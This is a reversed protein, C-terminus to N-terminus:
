HGTRLRLWLEAALLNPIWCLFSIARYADDPDAGTMYGLPILIRLTVAAYTLAVSRIMWRRHQAIRGNMVERWGLATTMFWAVSLGGFGATAIPGATTYLALWLGAVAGTLCALVYVKGAPRHWWRRFGQRTVLQFPGLILATVGGGVHAIVVWPWAALHGLMLEAPSVPELSLYRASVLAVTIALLTLLGFVATAFLRTM